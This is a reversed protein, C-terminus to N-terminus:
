EPQARQHLCDGSMAFHLSCTANKGCCRDKNSRLLKQGGGCSAWRRERHCEFRLRGLFYFVWFDISKLMDSAIMVFSLDLVM